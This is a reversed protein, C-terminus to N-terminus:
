PAAWARYWLAGDTGRVFVFMRAKNAYTTAGPGSTLYGGLSTWGGWVGNIQQKWWLTNDSGRAFVDVAGIYRNVADPSSTIVGAHLRPPYWAGNEWMRSWLQNSQSVAFIDIHGTNWMTAGPDSKVLSSVRQTGSWNGFYRYKRYLTHDTGLMYLEIRDGVVDSTAALGSGLALNHGLNTWTSSWQGNKLTRTYVHRNTSAIFVDVHWNTNTFFTCSVAPSGTTSSSSLSQWASWVGTPLYRVRYSLQNNTNRVFVYTYDGATCAAPDATITGGLTTWQTWGRAEADRDGEPMTEPNASAFHFGLFLSLTFFLKTM